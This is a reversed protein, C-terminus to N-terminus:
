LLRFYVEISKPTSQFINFREESIPKLYSNKIHIWGIGFHTLAERHTLCLYDPDGPETRISHGAHKDPLNAARTFLEFGYEYDEEIDEWYGWYGELHAYVAQRHPPFIYKWDPRTLPKSFEKILDEIEQPFEM